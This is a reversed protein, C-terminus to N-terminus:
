EIQEVHEFNVVNKILRKRNGNSVNKVGDFVYFDCVTADICANICRYVHVVMRLVIIFSGNLAQRTKIVYYFNLLKITMDSEKM